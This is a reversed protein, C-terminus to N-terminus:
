IFFFPFLVVFLVVKHGAAAREASWRPLDIGIVELMTIYEKEDDRLLTLLNIREQTGAVRKGEDWAGQGAVFTSPKAYSAMPTAPFSFTESGLPYPSIPGSNKGEPIDLSLSAMGSRHTKGEDDSPLDESPPLYCLISPRTRKKKAGTADKEAPEEVFGAPKEWTTEM